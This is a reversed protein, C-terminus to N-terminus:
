GCCTSLAHTAEHEKWLVLNQRPFASPQSSVCGKERLPTSQAAKTAPIATSGSGTRGLTERHCATGTRVANRPAATLARSRPVNTTGGRPRRIEHEVYWASGTLSPRVDLPSSVRPSHERTTTTSCFNASSIPGLLQRGYCTPPSVHRAFPARGRSLPFVGRAFPIEHDPKTPCRLSWPSWPLSQELTEQRHFANQIPVFLGQM